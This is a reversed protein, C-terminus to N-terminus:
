WYMCTSEFGYGLRVQGLALSCKFVYAVKLFICSNELLYTSLMLLLMYNCAVFEMAFKEGFLPIM